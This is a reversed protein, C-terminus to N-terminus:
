ERATAVVAFFAPKPRYARDFLLPYSTRGRIPWNNLWSDGDTVGWFTVRTLAEQQRLFVEFFGAYRDALAQQMSDPFAERYPDLEARLEERRSVDAGWYESPRPLVAVDLETIMVDVGLGAFTTISTELEELTPYTLAYHGQMGIGTVPVGADLLGQVLRVAGERKAPNTLSYDNYYLEAQPDAEHAFRFAHALYDEGIIELWRTPRLTGDENLAENVVDWGDVRGRYRGVVTQIHDRMRELLAERTLPEGRDDEFVWDPTQNHWVLTHGVIFLDREEGFAVFRDAAEFDYRDPEPHIQEWKMVNEPTITNFHKTILAVGLTDRGYFQDPNLAAGVLFADAFVEKLAPVAEEAPVPEEGPAECAATVLVLTLLCTWTLRM